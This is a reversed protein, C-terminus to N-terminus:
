LRIRGAAHETGNKSLLVVQNAPSVLISLAQGPAHREAWATALELAAARISDNLFDNIFFLTM